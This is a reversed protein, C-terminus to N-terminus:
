AVSGLDALLGRHSAERHEALILAICHNNNLWVGHHDHYARQFDKLYSFSSEPFAVQRFILQENRDPFIM